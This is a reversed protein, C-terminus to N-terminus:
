VAFIIGGLALAAHSTPKPIFPAEDAHNLTCLVSKTRSTQLIDTIAPMTDQVLLNEEQGVTSKETCKRLSRLTKALM